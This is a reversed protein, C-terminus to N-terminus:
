LPYWYEPSIKRSLFEFVSVNYHYAYFQFVCGLGLVYKAVQKYCVLLPLALLFKLTGSIYPGAYIGIEASCVRTLPHLEADPGTVQMFLCTSYADMVATVSWLIIIWSNESFFPYLNDKFKKWGLGLIEKNM